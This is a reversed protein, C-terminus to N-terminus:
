AGPGGPNACAGNVAPRVSIATAAVTGSSDATGRATVCTGVKLAAATAKKVAAYTTTGTTAVSIRQAPQSTPAGPRVSQVVFGSGNKSVVTGFAGGGFGRGGRPTGSPRMRGPAGSPRTRGPGGPGRAGAFGGTCSGNVPASTTVSIATLTTAPSAPPSGNASGGSRVMVCSGVTVEAATAKVTDTITTRSSYTVATQANSGQVQLTNGSLAALLGSVGPPGQRQPAGVASPSAHPQATASSASGCAAVALLAALPGAIALLKKVAIEV